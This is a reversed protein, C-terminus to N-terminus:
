DCSNCKEKVVNYIENAESGKMNLVLAEGWGMVTKM